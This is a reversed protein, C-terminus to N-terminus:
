TPEPPAQMHIPLYFEPWAAEGTFELGVRILRPLQREHRWLRRWQAQKGPPLTGYYALQLSKVGEVLVIREPDRAQFPERDPDLPQFRMVLQRGDEAFPQGELEIWVEYFGGESAWAALPAIFRLGDVDGEFTDRLSDQFATKRSSVLGVQRRLFDRLAREEALAQVVTQGARWQKMGLHLGSYGLLVVLSMLSVAVLLEVLTFGSRPQTKM